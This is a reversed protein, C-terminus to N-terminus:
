ARVEMQARAAQRSLGRKGWRTRQAYGLTHELLGTTRPPGALERARDDRFAVEVDFYPAFVATPDDPDPATPPLLIPAPRELIECAREVLESVTLATDGAVAHYTGSAGPDIMAAVLVDVVRDVGVIDVIGEPDAAVEDLLGRAFAQLPWYIVNFASTWGSDSEGVVISPRVVTSPLGARAVLYEAEWKTQEYTNRFTQGVDFDEEGFAGSSRGSVYATSVHVLRELAPLQRCLGVVNATGGVNTERAERLPLTFAISAACHVVREVGRTESAALGVGRDLIDGPVPRLRDIGEPPQDYLMALVEDLRARAGARDRARVPLLIDPGDDDELLRALFTMGLFGTAGTLLIM